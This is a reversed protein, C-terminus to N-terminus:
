SVRRTALSWLRRAQIGLWVPLDLALKGLLSEPQLYSKYYRWMGSHRASIAKAPASESSGGIRHKIQVDPFYVV